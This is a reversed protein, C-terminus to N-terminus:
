TLLAQPTWPTKVPHMRFAQIQGQQCYLECLMARTLSCYFLNLISHKIIFLKAIIKRVKTAYLLLTGDEILPANLVKEKTV